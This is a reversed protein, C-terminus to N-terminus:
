EDPSERAAMRPVRAAVIRNRLRELAHIRLAQNKEDDEGERKEKEPLGPLLLCSGGHRRTRRSLSGYRSGARPALRRSRSLCTARLHRPCGGRGVTGPLTEADAGVEQARFDIRQAPLDAVELKRLLFIGALLVPIEDQESRFM